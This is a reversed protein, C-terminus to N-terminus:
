QAQMQAIQALLQQIQQQILLIQQTASSSAQVASGLVQDLVSKTLPGVNGTQSINNLKQFAQVAAHTAPGFHGNPTATMLGKQVLFQQLKLVDDGNDGYGLYRPLKYVTPQVPPAVTAPNESSPNSQNGSGTVSVFLIACQGGNQCITANANGSNLASVIVASGSIVVSAANSNTNSAVYYNGSGTIYVTSGQGVALSINNQSFVPQNASSSGGVTVYLPICGGGGSSCIDITKSGAMAGYVTLINGNLTTQVIQSNETTNYYPTYGGSITVSLSQGVSLSMNSQSLAMSGGQSSYGVTLNLDGCGGASSCVSIKSSGVARGTITITSDTLNIQAINPNTNSSVYFYSNSPGYISVLLSSNVAVNPSPQSFTLATASSAQVAAVNVIGCSSSDTSCVIISSTGSDSNATLTLTSNNLSAQIVSPNSNNSIFYIGTGGSVTIPINQGPVISVDNQSFSLQQTSSSQVMVYIGACKSASGLQCITVLTSGSGLANVTIQSGNLSVNAVPPNSNNSLYLTGSSNSATVVSSQGVLLALSTKSLALNSSASSATYPWMVHNSQFGSVGGTTVYVMSNEGVGYSSTGITKSLYGSNNTDGIYVGTLGIGTKTYFFFVSTNADGNVNLSVDDGTGTSSVSMSPTAACAQTAVFMSAALLFLLARFSFIKKM